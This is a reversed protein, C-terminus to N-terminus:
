RAQILAWDIGADALEREDSIDLDPFSEFAAVPVALRREILALSVDHPLRYVLGRPLKGVADVTLRILLPALAEEQEEDVAIL